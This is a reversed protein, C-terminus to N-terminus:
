GSGLSSGGAYSSMKGAVAHLVYGSSVSKRCGPRFTGVRSKKQIRTYSLARHVSCTQHQVTEEPFVGLPPGTSRRDDTRPAADDARRGASRRHSKLAGSRRRLIQTDRLTREMEQHSFGKNSRQMLTIVYHCGGAITKDAVQMSTRIYTLSLATPGFKCLRLELPQSCTREELQELQQVGLVSNPNETTLGYKLHFLLLSRVCTLM